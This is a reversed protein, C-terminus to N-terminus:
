SGRGTVARPTRLTSVPLQLDVPDRVAALLRPGLQHLRGDGGRGAYERLRRHRVRAVAGAEEDRVVAATRVEHEDVPPRLLVLQM